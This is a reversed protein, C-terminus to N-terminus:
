MDLDIMYLASTGVGVSHTRGLHDEFTFTPEDTTSSSSNDNIKEEMYSERKECYEVYDEFRMSYLNDKEEHVEFGNEDLTRDFRRFKHYFERGVCKRLYGLSWMSPDIKTMNLLGRSIVTIDTREHMEFLFKSDELTL